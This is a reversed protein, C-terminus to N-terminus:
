DWCRKPSWLVSQPSRGRTAWGSYVGKGLLRKKKLQFSNFKTGRIAKPDIGGVKWDASKSWMCEVQRLEFKGQLIATEPTIGMKRFSELSVGALKLQRVNYGLGMARKAAGLHIDDSEGGGKAASSKILAQIVQKASYGAERAGAYLDSDIDELPIGAYRLTGLSIGRRRSENPGLEAILRQIKGRRTDVGKVDTAAGRAGDFNELASDLEQEGNPSEPTKIAGKTSAPASHGSTDVSNKGGPSECISDLELEHQPVEPGKIPVKTLASANQGSPVGLSDATPETLDIRDEVATGINDEHGDKFSTAVLTKRPRRATTEELYRGRKAKSPITSKAQKNRVKVGKLMIAMVLQSNTWKTKPPKQHQPGHERKPAKQAGDNDYSDRSYLKWNRKQTRNLRAKWLAAYYKERAVKQEETEKPMTPPETDKEVSKGGGKRSESPSARLPYHQMCSNPLYAEHGM